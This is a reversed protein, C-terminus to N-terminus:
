IPRLSLLVALAKAWPPFPAGGHEVMRFIAWLSLLALAIKITFWALAGALPPNVRALPRLMLAMIPPNPYQFRQYIDTGQDLQLIQERWRLFASRNALAKHTYLAATVAFVGALALWFWRQGVAPRLAPLADMGRVM